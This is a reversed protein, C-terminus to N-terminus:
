RTSKRKAGQEKVEFVLGDDGVDVTVHDGADLPAPWTTKRYVPTMPWVGTIRALAEDHGSFERSGVTVVVGKALHGSAASAADRDGTSLADVYAKAAALREQTAM